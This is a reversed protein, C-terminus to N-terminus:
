VCRLVHHSTATATLPVPSVTLIMRATPNIRRLSKWFDTLDEAVETSRFNIFEYREPDFSGAIVGPASPYITGDSKNVWAETLGLTFVLVDLSRFLNAVQDLHLRRMHLIRGSDPQGVPDISPRLADYFRGKSEWVLDDVSREGLAEQLLQRLQRATYINGYRCSYVGFGFRSRQDMPVCSPAPELDLFHYREARLHRGIHQAFCSGATAVKDKRDLKLPAALSELDAVHRDSVATKWYTWSPRNAYPNM